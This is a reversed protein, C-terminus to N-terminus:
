KMIRRLTKTAPPATCSIANDLANSRPPLSSVEKMQVHAFTGCRSSNGDWFKQFPLAIKKKKKKFLCSEM